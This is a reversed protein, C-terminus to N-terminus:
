VHVLLIYTIITMCYSAYDILGFYKLDYALRANISRVDFVSSCM